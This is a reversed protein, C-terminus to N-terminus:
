PEQGAAALASDRLVEIDFPKNIIKFVGYRSLSRLITGHAATVIIVRPLAQPKKKEMHNLVAYGSAGVMMLDIVLVDFDHADIQEIAWRGDPVTTVDFGQRQLLTEILARIPPDDDAVLAKLPRQVASSPM